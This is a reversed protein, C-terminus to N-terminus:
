LYKAIIQYYLLEWIPYTKGKKFFSKKIIM